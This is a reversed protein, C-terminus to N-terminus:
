GAEAQWVQTHGAKLAAKWVEGRFAAQDAASSAGEVELGGGSRAGSLRYMGDRGRSRDTAGRMSRVLPALLGVGKNGAVVGAKVLRPASPEAV